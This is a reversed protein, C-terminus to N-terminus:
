SGAGRPVRGVRSEAEFAMRCSPRSVTILVWAVAVLCWPRSDGSLGVCRVLSCAPIAGVPSWEHFPLFLAHRSRNTFRYNETGEPSQSRVSKGKATRSARYVFVIGITHSSLCAPDAGLSPPGAFVVRPVSRAAARRMSDEVVASYLRLADECAPRSRCRGRPVVCAWMPVVRAMRAGIVCACGPM